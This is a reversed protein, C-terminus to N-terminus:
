RDRAFANVVAILPPGALDPSVACLTEAMTARGARPGDALPRWLEEWAQM